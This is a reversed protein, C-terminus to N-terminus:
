CSYLHAIKIERLFLVEWKDELGVTRLVKLIQKLKKVLAMNKGLLRSACQSLASRAMEELHLDGRGLLRQGLAKQQIPQSKDAGHQTRYNQTGM